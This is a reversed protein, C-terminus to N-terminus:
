IILGQKRNSKFMLRVGLVQLCHLAPPPLCPM